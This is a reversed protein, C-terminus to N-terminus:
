VHARRDLLAATIILLGDGYIIQGTEVLAILFPYRLVLSLENYNFRVVHVEKVPRLVKGLDRVAYVCLKIAQELTM